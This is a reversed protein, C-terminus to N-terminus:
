QIKEHTLEGAQQAIRPYLAQWARIEEKSQLGTDLLQKHAQAYLENLSFSHEEQIYEDEEEEEADEYDDEDGEAEDDNCPDDCALPTGRDRDHDDPSGVAFFGPSTTGEEHGEDVAPEDEGETCGEVAEVYDSQSFRNFGPSGASVVGM